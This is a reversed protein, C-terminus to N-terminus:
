GAFTLGGYAAGLVGALAAAVLGVVDLFRESRTRSVMQGWLGTLVGVIGCYMGARSADAAVLLLGVAGLVFTGLALAVDLGHTDELHLAAPAHV